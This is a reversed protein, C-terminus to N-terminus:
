DKKATCEAQVSRGSSGASATRCSRGSAGRLTRESADYGADENDVCIFIYM